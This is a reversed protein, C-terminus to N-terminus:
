KSPVVNERNSASSEVRQYIWEYPQRWKARYTSEDRAISAARKRDSRGAVGTGSCKLCLIRRLGLMRSGRDKCSSCLPRESVESQVAHGITALMDLTSKPWLCRKVNELETEADHLSERRARTPNRDREVWYRCVSLKIEAELLRHQQERFERVVFTVLADGQGGDSQYTEM